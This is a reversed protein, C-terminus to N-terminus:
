SSNHGVMTRVVVGQGCSLRSSNCSDMLWRAFRRAPGRCQTRRRRSIAVGLRVRQRLVDLGGETDLARDWDEKKVWVAELTAADTPDHQRVRAM